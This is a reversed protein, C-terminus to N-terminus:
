TPSALDLDEVRLVRGSRVLFPFGVSAEAGLAYADCRPCILSIGIEVLSDLTRINPKGANIKRLVKDGIVAKEGGCRGCAWRDSQKM